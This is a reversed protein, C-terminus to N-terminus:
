IDFRNRLHAPVIPCSDHPRRFLRHRIGAIRDYVWDGAREPVSRILGALLWWFGGLRQLIYVVATSRTLLKGDHSLLVISDPVTKRSEESVAARFAPSDLPSFRFLGARDRAIVFRVLGHCLGCHGDYFIRDATETKKGGMM